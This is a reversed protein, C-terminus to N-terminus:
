IDKRKNSDQSGDCAIIKSFFEPHRDPGKQLDHCKNVGDEEYPPAHIPLVQVFRWITRLFARLQVFHFNWCIVLRIPPTHEKKSLHRANIWLKMQRAQQQIDQSNPTELLPWVAKWSTCGSLFKHEVWKRSELGAQLKKFNRYCKERNLPLNSASM